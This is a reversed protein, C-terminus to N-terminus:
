LLFYSIGWAKPGVYVGVCANMQTIFISDCDFHKEIFEKLKRAVEPNNTYGILCKIKNTGSTKLDSNIAEVIKSFAQNETRVKGWPVIEGEKFTILPIIKFVIGALAKAKGLRGSKALYNLNPIALIVKTKSKVEEAAKLIGDLNKGQSAIRATEVGVMAEGLSTMLTDVPEVKIDKSVIEAAKKVSQLTGSMKSSLHVSVIEKFGQSSLKKYTEVLQGPSLLSTRPMEGTKEIRQYFEDATINIGTHFVEEGFYIDHHARVIEYEEILEQPIDAADDVIVKVKSM